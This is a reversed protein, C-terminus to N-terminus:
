KRETSSHAQANAKILDPIPMWGKMEPPNATEMELWVNDGGDSMESAQVTAYVWLEDYSDWVAPCLWPWGFDALIMTFDKPADAPAFLDTSKLLTGDDTKVTNM